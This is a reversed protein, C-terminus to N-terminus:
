GEDPQDNRIRESEAAAAVADTYSDYMRQLRDPLPEGDHAAAATLAEFTVIAIRAQRETLQAPSKIDLPQGGKAAALVGVMVRRRERYDDGKWGIATWKAGLVGGTTKSVTEDLPVDPWVRGGPSPPVGPTEPQAAPGPTAPPAAGAPQAADAPADGTGNGASGGPGGAPRPQSGPPFGDDENEATVHRLVEGAPEGNAIALPPPVLQEPEGPVLQLMRGGAALARAQSAIVATQYAASQPWYRRGVHVATKMWMYYEWDGDWFKKSPAKKRHLMVENRWMVVCKGVREGRYEAYAYVAILDKNEREHNRIEHEPVRMRTPAWDFHDGEYVCEVNVTDVLGSQMALAIELKYDATGSIDPIGTDSNKFTLFHYTKGPIGGLQACDTAAIMFSQFNAQAARALTKDKRLVGYLLTVFAQAPVHEPLVAEFWHTFQRLRGEVQASITEAQAAAERAAEVTTGPADPAQRPTAPARDRAM